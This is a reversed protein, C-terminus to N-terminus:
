KCDGAKGEVAAGASGGLATGVGPLLVTGVVAGITYGTTPRFIPNQRTGSLAVPVGAFGGTKAISVDLRGSLAQDPAVEVFGAARLASSKACLNNVRIRKGRLQLVGRLEDFRTTGGAGKSGTLDAIKTLDVGRYLAEAVNFPGDIALTDALQDPSKATATFKANAGLKGSLKPDIGLARQVGALDVGSLVAGGSVQWAKAWDVRASGQLSGGYQRSNINSLELRKGTLIGDAKLSDFVLPAAALPLRWRSADLKVITKGSPDPDLLLTFAGDSTTIRAMEVEAGAGMRADVNFPPLKLAAHQLRVDLLVLRRVVVTDGGKKMRDPIALAAEKLEVKEARLLRITRPGSLLSLLEPVIELEGIVVEDKKGIRIGEAVLRPTPLLRVRLDTITVPQGLSASLVLTIRPILSAVPVLFPVAIAAVAVLGAALLFWRAGRSISRVPM